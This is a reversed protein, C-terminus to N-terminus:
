MKHVKSVKAWLQSTMHLLFKTKVNGSQSQKRKYKYIGRLFQSVRNKLPFLYLFM